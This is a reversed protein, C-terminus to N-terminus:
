KIEDNNLHIIETMKGDVSKFIINYNETVGGVTVGVKILMGQSISFTQLQPAVSTEVNVSDYYRRLYADLADKVMALAPDLLNGAQEMIRPLSSVNGYYLHTQKYDSVFFHGLLLDFKNKLDSTWGLSGLCPVVVTPKVETVM